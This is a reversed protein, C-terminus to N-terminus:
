LNILNTKTWRTTRNGGIAAAVEAIGVVAVAIAAVVVTASAPLTRPRVVSLDANVIRRCMAGETMTAASFISILGRIGATTVETIM